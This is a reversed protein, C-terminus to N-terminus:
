RHRQRHCKINGFFIHWLFTDVSIISIGCCVARHVKSKLAFKLLLFFFFWLIFVVIFRESQDRSRLVSRTSRSHLVSVDCNMSFVKIAASYIRLGTSPKLMEADCLVDCRISTPTRVSHAMANGDLQKTMSAHKKEHHRESKDKNERHKRNHNDYPLVDNQRLESYELIQIHNLPDM